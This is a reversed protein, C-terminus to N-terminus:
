ASGCWRGTRGLGQEGTGMRLLLHINVMRLRTSHYRGCAHLHLPAAMNLATASHARGSPIGWSSLCVPLHIGPLRGEAVWCRSQPDKVFTCRLVSRMRAM